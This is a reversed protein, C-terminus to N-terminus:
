RLEVAVTKVEDRRVRQCHRLVNQIHKIFFPDGPTQVARNFFHHRFYVDQVHGAHLFLTQVRGLVGVHFRLKNKAGAIEVVGFGIHFHQMRQRTNILNRRINIFRWM